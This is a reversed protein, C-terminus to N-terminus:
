KRGKGKGIMLVVVTALAFAALAGDARRRDLCVNPMSASAHGRNRKSSPAADAVDIFSLLTDSLNRVALLASRLEGVAAFLNEIRIKM